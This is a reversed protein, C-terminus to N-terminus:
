SMDRPSGQNSYLEPGDEDTDTDGGMGQAREWLAALEAVTSDAPYPYPLASIEALDAELAWRDLNAIIENRLKGRTPSRQPEEPEVVPDLKVDGTAHKEPNYIETAEIVEIDHNHRGAAVAELARRYRDIDSDGTAWGVARVRANGENDIRVTQMSLAPHSRMANRRAVTQAKRFIHELIGIFKDYAAQVDKHTIDHAYGVGGYMPTFHWNWSTDGKTARWEKWDDRHILRVPLEVSPSDNPEINGESNAKKNKWPSGKLINALMRQLDTRPDLDLTYQVVVINGTHPAPGAVNVGIVIRRLDGHEDRDVYPNERQIGDVVIGQPQAVSCGAVANIRNYGEYTLSARNPHDFHPRLDYPTNKHDQWFWRQDTGARYKLWTDPIQYVTKDHLSLKVAAVVQRLDGAESRRVFVENDGIVAVNQRRLEVCYRALDDIVPRTLTTVTGADAGMIAQIAIDALGKANGERLM